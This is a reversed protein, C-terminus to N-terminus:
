MLALRRRPHGAGAKRHPLRGAGRRRQRQRAVRNWAVNRYFLQLLRQLLVASEDPPVLVHGLPQLFPPPFPIVFNARSASAPRNAIDAPPIARASSVCFALIPTSRSDDDAGTNM